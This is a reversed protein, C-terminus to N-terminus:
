IITTRDNRFVIYKDQGYGTVSDIVYRDIVYDIQGFDFNSNKINLLIDDAGGPKCYCLPIAKIYGLEQVSGDQITRMWLPMYNRERLGLSEIRKRWIAVSAPFKYETDPDGAFIDSRDVTANLPIPRDWYPNIQDFPGQYFENNQDVTILRNTGKTGIVNALYKDGIELPDVVELYIVEYVTATTGPTKAKAKKVSGLKFRKPKHNRGVVGVVEAATKTEIGAYVLMKLEKQIGFNTDTPRYVKTIDFIDPDTIFEKFINRQEQKLFPRVTLNSYLRDNPTNIDLSFTRTIASYGLIDRATVIFSYQRDVTTDGNDLSFAEDDFTILGPNDQTGFQNVKGVIEGDINLSLGPPLAGSTLYYLLPSNVLTTTAEVKLTSIYNADILGLNSDTVWTLTSDIEGIITAHFIRKSNAKEDSDTYRTATITFRYEKTIATQYPLVGFVEATSPDFNMGPPLTSATGIYLLTDNFVTKELNSNLTLLFDTASYKIVETITYVTSESAGVVQGYLSLKLGTTIDGSSNKLRLKNTGSRNESSSLTYATAYIDPNVTDLSYLIEGLDLDEYIDLKFTKYNNARFVGLEAATSWIPARAYTIDATFTGNGAQVITNDARFYDDGVVYIRFVRSSQSDGDTVIVNFQYNRNLKRPPNSPVSFDFTRTDFIYSDYGNSPRVGYDYAVKDYLGTDFNGNGDVLPPALVPQVWGVIRGTETLILGPPLEGGGSPIFYKLEQGAATDTDTVSLQFDIYSNDLIFYADNTGIPLRGAATLWVPDDSGAVTINLTRDAIESNYNARVVFKFDTTRPVEFPTGVIRDEEIRLGPPLSGSIVVFSTNTSDNFNNVYTVPLGLNVISREQIVGYSYGSPVSWINLM